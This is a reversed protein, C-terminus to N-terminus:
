IIDISDKMEVIVNYICSHSAYITYATDDTLRRVDRVIREYLDDVTTFAIQM